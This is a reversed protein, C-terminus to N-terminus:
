FLGYLNTQISKIKCFQINRLVAYLNREKKALSPQNMLIATDIKSIIYYGEVHEIKYYANTFHIWIIVGLFGNRYLVFTSPSAIYPIDGLCALFFTSFGM